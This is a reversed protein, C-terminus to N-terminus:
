SYATGTMAARPKVGKENLATHVKLRERLASKRRKESESMSTSLGALRNGSGTTDKDNSSITTATENPSKLLLIDAASRLLRISCASAKQQAMVHKRSVDVEMTTNDTSKSTNSQDVTLSKITMLVSKINDKCEDQGIDKVARMQGEVDNVVHGSTTRVRVLSRESGLKHEPQRKLRAPCCLRTLCVRLQLRLLATFDKLLRIASSIQKAIWCFEYDEESQEKSNIEEDVEKQLINLDYRFWHEDLRHKEEVQMKFGLFEVTEDPTTPGVFHLLRFRYLRSICVVAATYVVLLAECFLYLQVTEVSCLM